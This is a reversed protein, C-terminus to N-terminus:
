NQTQELVTDGNVVIERNIPAALVGGYSASSWGVVCIYTGPHLGRIEFEGEPSAFTGITTYEIDAQGDLVKPTLQVFAFPTTKGRLSSNGGANDLVLNSIQQNKGL